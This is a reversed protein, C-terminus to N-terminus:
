HSVVSIIQKHLTKNSAVVFSKELSLSAGYRDTVAGGAEKIILLGAAYDWPNLEFEWFGAARGSAIYCLDLAAAGLRRIGLIGKKLFIEIHSLNKKMLRGRDYYFGTILLARKLQRIRSVHIRKGNLYAGRNKVASFLEDRHIDYIAAALPEGNKCVAVSACFFPMGSAFNNTGDLPDVVWTYPSATIDYEQEEAMINHDPFAGRIARVIAKESEIDAVTVLDFTHGKTRVSLSTNFHKKHIAGAARAAKIAIKQLETKKM